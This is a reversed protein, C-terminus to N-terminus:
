IENSATVVSLNTRAHLAHNACVEVQVALRVIVRAEKRVRGEKETSGIM